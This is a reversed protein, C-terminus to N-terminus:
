RSILPARSLLVPEPPLMDPNIPRPQHVVANPNADSYGMVPLSPLSAPHTLMGM